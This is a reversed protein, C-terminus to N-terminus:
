FNAKDLRTMAPLVLRKTSPTPLDVNTEESNTQSASIPPHFCLDLSSLFM